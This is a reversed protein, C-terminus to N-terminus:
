TIDMGPTAGSDVSLLFIDKEGEGAALIMGESTGFKMKRPQLNTVMVTLKGALEDPSYASKIGSFVTKNTEEGIDMQLKLLKDAGEVHEASVIQAVKMQVKAFDNIDIHSEIEADSTTMKNDQGQQPKSKAILKEVTKPELRQLMPKFKNVKHKLLPQDISSWDLPACNLFAETKSALEPLIPKLYAM